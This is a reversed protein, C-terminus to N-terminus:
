AVAAISARAGHFGLGLKSLMHVYSRRILAVATLSASHLATAGNM